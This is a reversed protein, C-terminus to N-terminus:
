QNGQVGPGAPNHGPDRQESEKAAQEQEQQRLRLETAQADPNEATSQRGDWTQASGHRVYSQGDQREATEEGANLTPAPRGSMGDKRHYGCNHCAERDDSVGQFCNACNWSM